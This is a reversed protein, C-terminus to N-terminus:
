VFLFEAPRFRALVLSCYTSGVCSYFVFDVVTLCFILGLMDLDATALLDAIPAIKDSEDFLRVSSTRCNSNIEVHAVIVCM